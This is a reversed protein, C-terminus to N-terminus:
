IKDLLLLNQEWGQVCFLITGNNPTSSLTVLQRHHASFLVLSLCKGRRAGECQDWALAEKEPFHLSSQCKSHLFRWDSM